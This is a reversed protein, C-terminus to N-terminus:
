VKRKIYEVLEPFENQLFHGRDNFIMTNADPLLQTLEEFDEFPVVTDNKSHILVIEDAKQTLSAVLSKNIAFTDLQYEGSKSDNLASSVLFLREIKKDIENESLYKILFTGGLSHGILIFNDKAYNLVKEFWIKWETYKANYKNPMTPRIFEFNNSLKDGLSRSWRKNKDLEKQPDFVAIDKLFTLYKGYSDFTEGGHILIVQKKHKKIRVYSM